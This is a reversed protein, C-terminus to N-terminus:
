IWSELQYHHRVQRIANDLAKTAEAVAAEFEAQSPEPPPAEAAAKGACCGCGRPHGGLPAPPELVDADEAQWSFQKSAEAQRLAQLSFLMSPPFNLFSSSLLASPELM